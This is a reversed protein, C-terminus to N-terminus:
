PHIHSLVRQLLEDSSESNDYLFDTPPARETHTDTHILPIPLFIPVTAWPQKCSRNTKAESESFFTCFSDSPRYMKLHYVKTGLPHM